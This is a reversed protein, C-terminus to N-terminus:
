VTAFCFSLHNRCFLIFCDCALEPVVELHTGRRVSRSPRHSDVIIKYQQMKRLYVRGTSNM